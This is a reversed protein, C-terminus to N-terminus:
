VEKFFVSKCTYDMPGIQIFFWLADFILGFIPIVAFIWTIYYSILWHKVREDYNYMSFLNIYNLILAIIITIIVIAIGM